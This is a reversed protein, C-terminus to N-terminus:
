EVEKGQKLTDINKLLKKAESYKYKAALARSEELIKEIEETRKTNERIKGIYESVKKLEEFYMNKSRKRMLYNSFAYGSLSYFVNEQNSLNWSKINNDLLLKLVSYVDENYQLKDYQELKELVDNSLRILKEVGMGQFNIKDLIPKSKHGTASQTNGIEGVLYGLLFLARKQEEEYLAIDSWYELIEKPLMGEEAKGINVNGKEGVDVGRLLKLKIFLFLLFNLQVIKDTFDQEIRINYGKREFKIIRIVETFQNILFSYNVSKDSFLADIIDLYRSFGSYDGEERKKIPICGWIQNLDIKLRKNGGYNDDVLNCIEQTKNRIFDLRSPPVDKILKLIKFESRAPPKHYFIYNIIFDNKNAEYEKFRELGNQFDKLSILNDISDTSYKIYKSFKELDLKNLKFIFHPIIYTKLGGIKTSLNNDIFNEAIMLYQYCDNCINYNKIFMGDLNSSFGIKDTMYFKFELNTANSTTVLPADKECISCGGTTLNKSYTKSKVDFLSNIKEYYIMNRYEQHKALLEGNLKVTYISVEDKKIGQHQLLDNTLLSERKNNRPKSRKIIDEKYKITLKEVINSNILEECKSEATEKMSEFDGKSPLDCKIDMKGCISKLEKIKENLDKKTNSSMVDKKVITLNKKLYEASETLLGFKSPDVVGDDFFENLIQEIDTKFDGNVKKMINPLAKTFLYIPSDTTLFIQEKPGSNNGIWLYEKGSDKGGANVKEFDMEVKQTRTNFNLFVIHQEFSRTRDVRNEPIKLCIENLYTDKTLNGKVAYEGVRKIAEIM